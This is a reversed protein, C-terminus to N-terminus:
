EDDDIVVVDDDDDIVVVEGEPIEAAPLDLPEDLEMMEEFQMQETLIEAADELYDFFEPPIANMEMSDDIQGFMELVTEPHMHYMEWFYEAVNFNHHTLGGNLIGWVVENDVDIDYEMLIEEIGMEDEEDEDDDEDEDVPEIQENEDIDSENPDPISIEEEYESDSM